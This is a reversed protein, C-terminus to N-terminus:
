VHNSSEFAPTSIETNEDASSVTLVCHPKLWQVGQGILDITGTLGPSMADLSRQYAEIREVRLQAPKSAEQPHAIKEFVDGVRVPLDGCRGIVHYVGSAGTIVGSAFFETATSM